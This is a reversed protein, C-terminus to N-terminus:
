VNHDRDPHGDAHEGFKGAELKSLILRVRFLEALCIGQACLINGQENGAAGFFKGARNEPFKKVCRISKVLNFEVEFGRKWDM